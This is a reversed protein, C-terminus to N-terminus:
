IDQTWRTDSLIWSENILEVEMTKMWVIVKQKNRKM